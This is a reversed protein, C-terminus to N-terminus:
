FIKCIRRTQMQQVVIHSIRRFSQDTSNSFGKGKAMHAGGEATNAVIAGNYTLISLRLLDKSISFRFRINKTASTKKSLLPQKFNLCNM